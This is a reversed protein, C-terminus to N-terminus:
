GVPKVKKRIREGIGNAPLSQIATHHEAAQRTLGCCSPPIKKLTAAQDRYFNSHSLKIKDVVHV